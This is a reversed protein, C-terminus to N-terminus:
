VAAEGSEVSQPPRYRRCQVVSTLTPFGSERIGIDSVDSLEFRDLRFERSGTTDM